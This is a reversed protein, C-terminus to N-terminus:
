LEMIDTEEDDVDSLTPRPRKRSAREADHEEKREKREKREKWELERSVFAHFVHLDHDEPYDASEKETMRKFLFTDVKQSV